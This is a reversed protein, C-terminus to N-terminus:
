EADFYIWIKIDIHSVYGSPRWTTTVLSKLLPHPFRSGRHQFARTKSGRQGVVFLSCTGPLKIRDTSSANPVLPKQSITSPIFLFAKTRTLLSRPELYISRVAVKSISLAHSTRVNPLGSSRHPQSEATMTRRTMTRLKQVTMFISPLRRAYPVVSSSRTPPRIACRQWDCHMWTTPTFACVAYLYCRPSSFVTGEGGFASVVM